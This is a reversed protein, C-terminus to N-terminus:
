DAPCHRWIRAARCRRDASRRACSPSSTRSAPRRRLRRANRGVIELADEVFEVAHLGGVPLAGAGPRPRAMQRPKTSAMPPVIVAALRVRDSAARNEGDGQRQRRVAARARLGCSRRGSRQADQDDVVLRRDPAEQAGAQRRLAILTISASSPSGASSQRRRLGTSRTTSSRPRGPCPRAELHDPAQALCPEVTGM